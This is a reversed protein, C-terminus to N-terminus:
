EQVTKVVPMISTQDSLYGMPIQKGLTLIVGFIVSVFNFFSLCLSLPLKNEESFLNETKSQICIITATAPARLVFISGFCQVFGRGFKLVIDGFILM